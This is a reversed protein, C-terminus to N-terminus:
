DGIGGVILDTLGRLVLVDDNFRSIPVPAADDLGIASWRRVFDRCIRILALALSEVRGGSSPVGCALMVTDIAGAFESVADATEVIWRVAAPREEDSPDALLVLAPRQMALGEMLTWLEWNFGGDPCIPDQGHM